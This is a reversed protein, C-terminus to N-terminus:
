EEDKILIEHYGGDDDYWGHYVKDIVKQRHIIFPKDKTGAGEPYLDRHDHYKYKIPSFFEDMFGRDFVTMRTM